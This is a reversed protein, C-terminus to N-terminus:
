DGKSGSPRGPLVGGAGDGRDIQYGHLEEAAVLVKELLGRDAKRHFALKKSGGATRVELYPGRKMADFTLWPGLFVFAM